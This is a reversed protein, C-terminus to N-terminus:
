NLNSLLKEKLLCDSGMYSVSNLAELLKEKTIFCDNNQLTENSILNKHIHYDVSKSNFIDKLSNYILDCKFEEESDSSTALKDDEVVKKNQVKNYNKKKL